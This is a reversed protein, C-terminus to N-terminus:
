EEGGKLLEPNDHINGIIEKEYDNIWRQSMPGTFTGYRDGPTKVIFSGLTNDYSVVHIHTKESCIIDGEYIERGNKDTLETFQGLTEYIIPYDIDFGSFNANYGSVHIFPVGNCDRLFYGYAWKGNNEGRSSCKGRFKITRM